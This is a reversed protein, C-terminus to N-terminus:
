AAGEKETSKTQEECEGLFELMWRVAHEASVVPRSNAMTVGDRRLTDALRSAIEAQRVTLTMDVRRSMYGEGLPHLEPFMVLFGTSDASKAENQTKAKAM